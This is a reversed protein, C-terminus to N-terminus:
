YPRYARINEIFSRGAAQRRTKPLWAVTMYVEKHVGSIVCLIMGRAVRKPVALHGAQDGRGPDKRLTQVQQPKTRTKQSRYLGVNGLHDASKATTITNNGIYIM